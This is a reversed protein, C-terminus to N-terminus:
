FIDVNILLQSFSKHMHSSDLCFSAKLSSALAIWKMTYVPLCSYHTQPLHCLRLSIKWNIGEGINSFLIEFEWRIFITVKMIINVNKSSFQYNLRLNAGGRNHWMDYQFVIRVTQCFYSPLPVEFIGVKLCKLSSPFFKTTCRLSKFFRM